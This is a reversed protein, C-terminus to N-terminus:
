FQQVAIIDDEQPVVVATNRSTANRAASNSSSQGGNSAGVQTDLVACSSFAFGVLLLALPKKTAQLIQKPKM